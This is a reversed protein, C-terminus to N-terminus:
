ALLTKKPTVDLHNTGLVANGLLVQCNNLQLFGGLALWIPAATWRCQCLKGASNASSGAPIPAAPIAAAAFLKMAPAARPVIKLATYDAKRKEGKAPGELLTLVAQKSNLREVFGKREIFKDHHKQAYCM